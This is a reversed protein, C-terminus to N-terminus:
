KDIRIKVKSDALGIEGVPLVNFALSHRVNNDVVDSVEHFVYSPFMIIDGKEPTYATKHSVLDKNEHGTGAHFRWPLPNTFVIPSPSDSLYLVGSMFSNCHMHELGKFTQGRYNVTLWSSFVSYESFGFEAMVINVMDDVTNALWSFTTDLVNYDASTYDSIETSEISKALEEEDIEFQTRYLPTPFLSTRTLMM